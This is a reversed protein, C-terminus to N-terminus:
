FIGAVQRGAAEILVKCAENVDLNVQAAKAAVATTHVKAGKKSSVKKQTTTATPLDQHTGMGGLTKASSITQSEETELGFVDEESSVREAIQLDVVVVATKVRTAVDTVFGVVSGIIGGAVTGSMLHDRGSLGLGTLAGLSAGTLTGSFDMGEKWEGVYRVNAQLLYAAESPKQVLRYGRSQLGSM